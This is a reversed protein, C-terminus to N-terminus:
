QLSAQTSAPESYCLWSAIFSRCRFGSVKWFHWAIFDIAGLASALASFALVRRKACSTVHDPNTSLPYDSIRATWTWETMNICCEYSSNSVDRNEYWSTWCFYRGVAQFLVVYLIPSVDNLKWIRPSICTEGLRFHGEYPKFFLFMCYRPVDNLKWMRSLICKEGSRFHRGGPRFFFLVYLM